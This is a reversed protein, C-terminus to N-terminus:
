GVPIKTHKKKKQINVLSKSKGHIPRIERNCSKSKNNKRASFSLAPYTDVSKEINTFFDALSSM